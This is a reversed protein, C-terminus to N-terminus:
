DSGDDEFLELIRPSGLLIHDFKLIWRWFLTNGIIKVYMNPKQILRGYNNKYIQKRSRFACVCTKLLSQFGKEPKAVIFCTQNKKNRNAYKFFINKYAAYM